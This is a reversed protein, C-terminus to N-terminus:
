VGSGWPAVPEAHVAWWGPDAAWNQEASQSPMLARFAGLCLVPFQQTFNLQGVSSRSQPSQHGRLTDGPLFSWSGVPLSRKRESGCGRTTNEQTVKLYVAQRCPRM